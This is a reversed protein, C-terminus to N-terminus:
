PSAGPAAEMFTIVPRGADMRFRFRVTTGVPGPASVGPALSFTMTMPPWSLSPVAEHRLTAAGPQVATLVGITDHEESADPPKLRSPSRGRESAARLNSESDVLFQASSVVTAGEDLGSRVETLGDVTRGPEIEMPVYRGDANAVYVLSRTGTRIIAEDPVTLAPKGRKATFRVTATMGPVLVAGNNAFEIRVGRTRTVPDISPLVAVVKGELRANILGPASIAVGDGAHIEGASAEPVAAEVWIPSLPSIRALTQGPSVTMGTRVALERVIGSAPARQVLTVDPAQGRAAKAISDDDLGLIKLRTVSAARLPALEPSPSAALVRHENLAALLEPSSVTLLADGQRVAVFSGSVHVHTVSGAVRAQLLVDNGEPVTVVAPTEVSSALLKRVVKATRLCLNQALYSEIKVGESAEDGYVPVLNMDMFPSKGPKDFRQGPVMPDHWYLVKRADKGGPADAPNSHASSAADPEIERGIWYGGAAAVGIALLMAFSTTTRNM